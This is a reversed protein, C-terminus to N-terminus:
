AEHDERRDCRRAHEGVLEAVEEAQRVRAERDADHVLRRAGMRGLALAAEMGLLERDHLALAIRHQGRAEQARTRTTASRSESRLCGARADESLQAWDHM